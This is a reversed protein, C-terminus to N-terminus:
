AQVPCANAQAGQSCTQRFDRDPCMCCRIFGSEGTTGQQKLREGFQAYYDEYHVKLKDVLGEVCLENAYNLYSAKAANIIAKEDRAVDTAAFINQKKCLNYQKYLEVGGGPDNRRSQDAMAEIEKKYYDTTLGTDECRVTLGLKGAIDFSKMIQGGGKWMLLGVVAGVLLLTLVKQISWEM